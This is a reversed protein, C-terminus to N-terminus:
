VAAMISDAFFSPQISFSSACSFSTRSLHFSSLFAAPYHSRMM